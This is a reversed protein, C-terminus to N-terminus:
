TAALPLQSPAYAGGDLGVITDPAGPMAFRWVALDPFQGGGSWKLPHRPDNLRDLNAPFYVLEAQAAALAAASLAGGGGSAGTRRQALTARAQQLSLRPFPQGFEPDSSVFPGAFSNASLRQHRADYNFDLLAVIRGSADAVPIVWVDYTGPTPHYVHVLVPTRLVGSALARGLTTQPAHSAAQFASTARAAQLVDAPQSSRLSIWQPGRNASGLSASKGAATLAVGAAAAVCAVVSILLVLAIAGTRLRLALRGLAGAVARGAAQGRAGPLRPPFWASFRPHRWM